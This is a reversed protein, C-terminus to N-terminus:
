LSLAPPGLLSTVQGEVMATRQVSTGCAPCPALSTPCRARATLVSAVIDGAPVCALTRTALLLETRAQADEVVRCVRQMSRDTPRIIEALYLM